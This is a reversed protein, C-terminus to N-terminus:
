QLLPSFTREFKLVWTSTDLPYIVNAVKPKRHGKRDKWFKGVVLFRPRKQGHFDTSTEMLNTM